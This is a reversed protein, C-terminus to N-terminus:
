VRRGGDILVLFSRVCVYLGYLRYGVTQCLLFGGYTINPAIMKKLNNVYFGPVNTRNEMETWM